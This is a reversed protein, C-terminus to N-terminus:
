KLTVSVSTTGDYPRSAAIATVTLSRPTIDATTTATANIPSYNASDIGSITIGVVSVIKATGVNKDSFTASADADTFVDGSVRDDALTVSAVTTGDYVKAVGLATVTLKRPSISATTTTNPNASYNASDAGSISIGTVTV